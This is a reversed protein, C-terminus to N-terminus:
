LSELVPGVNRRQWIRMRWGRLSTQQGIHMATQRLWYLLLAHRDAIGQWASGGDLLAREDESWQTARLQESVVEGLERGTVLRRTYLVLHLIDHLAPEVPGSADWDVIGVMAPLKAGGPSFLLNGPWYDGHIRCADFTGGRLAGCLEERLQAVAIGLRSDGGVIRLLEHVHTDV